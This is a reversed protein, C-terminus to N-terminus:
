RLFKALYTNKGTADHSDFNQNSVLWALHRQQVGYRKFIASFKWSFPYHIEPAQILGIAVRRPVGFHQYREGTNM